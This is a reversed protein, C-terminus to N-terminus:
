ININNEKYRKFKYCWSIYNSKFYKLSYEILEYDRNHASPIKVLNKQFNKLLDVGNKNVVSSFLKIGIKKFIKTFLWIKKKTLQAKKYISKRGDKDWPGPAFNLTLYKLKSLILM